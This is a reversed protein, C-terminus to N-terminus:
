VYQKMEETIKQLEKPTIFELYEQANNYSIRYYRAVMKINDDSYKSASIYKIFKLRSNNFCRFAEIQSHVPLSPYLNFTSAIPLTRYDSMLFKGFMWSNVKNLDEQTLPESTKLIKNFVKFM